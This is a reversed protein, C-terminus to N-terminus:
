AMECAWKSFWRSDTNKEGTSFRNNATLSQKNSYFFQAILTHLSEFSITCKKARGRSLRRSNVSITRHVGRASARTHPHSHILTLSLRLSLSLSLARSRAHTIQKISVKKGQKTQGGNSMKQAQGGIRFLAKQAGKATAINKNSGNQTYEDKWHMARERHLTLMM